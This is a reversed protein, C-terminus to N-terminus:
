DKSARVTLYGAGYKIEPLILVEGDETIDAHYAGKLKAELMAKYKEEMTKLNHKAESVEEVKSYDYTKRGSVFSVVCGRYGKPYEAAQNAILELNDTEFKKVYTLILDAKTKLERLEILADLEIKMGNDVSSIIEIAEKMMENATTM